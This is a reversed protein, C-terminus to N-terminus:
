ITAVQPTRVPEPRPQTVVITALSGVVVAMAALQTTTLPEDLFIWAMVSGVVPILLTLASGLWLPVRVLSWNMISHGLIGAGFTLAILPLWDLAPNRFVARHAAGWRWAAVDTGYRAALDRGAADLSAAFAEDIRELFSM